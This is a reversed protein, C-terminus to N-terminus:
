KHNQPEPVWTIGRESLGNMWDIILYHFRKLWLLQHVLCIFSMKSSFNWISHSELRHKTAFSHVATAAMHSGIEVKKSLCTIFFSQIFFLYSRTFVNKQNSVCFFWIFKDWPLFINSSSGNFHCERLWKIM